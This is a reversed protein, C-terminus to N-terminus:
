CPCLSCSPIRCSQLCMRVYFLFSLWWSSHPPLISPSPFLLCLSPCSPSSMAQLNRISLPCVIISLFQLAPWRSISMIETLASPICKTSTFVRLSFMCAGGWSFTFWVLCLLIILAAPHKRLLLLPFSNPMASQWNSMIATVNISSLTCVSYIGCAYM